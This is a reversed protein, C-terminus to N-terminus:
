RYIQRGYSHVQGPKASNSVYQCLYNDNHQGIEVRELYAIFAIFVAITAILPSAVSQVGPLAVRRFNCLLRCM